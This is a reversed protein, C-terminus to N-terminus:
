DIWIYDVQELPVDRKSQNLPKVKFIQIKCQVSMKHEITANNSDVSIVNGFDFYFLLVFM